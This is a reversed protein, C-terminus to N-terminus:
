ETAAGARLQQDIRLALDAADWAEDPGLLANPAGRIADRFAEIEARHGTDPKRLTDTRARVGQAELRMFDTLHLTGGGAHVEIWEKALSPAGLSTYVLSAVHEHRHADRFRLSVVVDQPSPAARQSSRVAAASWSVREPGLWFSLLDLMHCLEGVIRGGGVNPDLTWHAAPVRGANVRYVVVAPGGSAAIWDRVRLSLPAYRRNYGVTFIRGATHAADRLGDIQERTIGMPKELFVHKGARLAAVALQAHSDHRTAIVVADVGDDALAAEPDTSAQAAGFEQAVKAASASSRTVVSRLSFDSTAGIAPLLTEAAFGGGGIVTIGIRGDRKAAAASAVTRAAPATRTPYRLLMAVGSGAGAKAAGFAAAADELDREEAVLREPDVSGRAVLELFAAMNRNETWRVFGIPYDLGGEEYSPDYRGPGYSCSMTLEVEKRYFAERELTLGVAGVIVVRGRQRVARFATNIPDSSSTGACLLVADAGTGRTEARVTAEVEAPDSGCSAVLGGPGSRALTARDGRPDVGIVRCGAAGLIQVTLQGVLGLGVVVVTEGVQPAARRVGQLAIAGVTAFSAARLSAGEPVPVVLNRPVAVQEAHHAYDSGGAAVLAGPALDDVDAGVEVVRGAVSYGMPASIGDRVRAKRLVEQLGRTRLREAGMRAMAAARDLRARLDPSALASTETGTSIVSHAVDIRVEGPGCAPAPAEEVQIAGSRSLFVQRL